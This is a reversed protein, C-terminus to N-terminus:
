IFLKPRVYIFGLIIVILVTASGVIIPITNSENFFPKDTTSNLIPKSFTKNAVRTHNKILSDYINGNTRNEAFVTQSLLFLTILFFPIVNM